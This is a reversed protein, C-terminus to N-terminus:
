SERNWCSVTGSSVSRSRRSARARSATRPFYPASATPRPRLQPARGGGPRVKFVTRYGVNELSRVFPDYAAQRPWYTMHLPGSLFRVIRDSSFVLVGLPNFIYFDAIPDVNAGQYAGNEVVENLLAGASMTLVGLLRPHPYGHYDYWEALYRYVLGEGLVHGFYNPVWQGSNRSPNPLIETTLFREWGFRNIAEIPDALNRAVNELGAGYPLAFPDDGRNDIQFNFYGSHLIATGPRFSLESGYTRGRYFYGPQQGSAAVPILLCM